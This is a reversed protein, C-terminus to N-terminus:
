DNAAVVLVAFASIIQCRPDTKKETALKHVSREVKTVIENWSVDLQKELSPWLEPPFAHDTQAKEKKDWFDTLKLQTLTADERIVIGAKDFWRSNIEIGNQDELLWSCHFYLGTIAHEVQISRIWFASSGRLNEMSYDYIGEVFPQGYRLPHIGKGISVVDRRSSLLTTLEGYFDRSLPDLGLECYEKLDHKSMETRNNIYTYRFTKPIKAVNQYEFGLSNEIWRRMHSINSALGKSSGDANIEDRSELNKDLSLLKSSFDNAEMVEDELSDMVEQRDVKRKEIKLLGNSGQEGAFLAELKELARPGEEFVLTWVEEFKNTLVHQLSAVSEGFINIGDNLLNVWASLFVAKGPMLIITKIPNARVSVSFRNARGNRQEIRNFDMPISYHIITKEGGHLNLGNEGQQDCVLIRTSPDEMFGIISQPPNYLELKYDSLWMNIKTFLNHKTDPDDCFIIFKEEPNSKLREELFNQLKLDKQYQEERCNEKLEDFLKVSILDDYDVELKYSEVEKQLLMPNSFYLELWCKFTNENLKGGFRRNSNSNVALDRLSDLIQEVSMKNKQIPWILIEPVGHEGTSDKQFGPFYIEINKDQRRNRLMRHHLRYNEGLYERMETIKNIRDKDFLDSSNDLVKEFDKAFVKWNEDDPFKEGVKRITPILRSNKNDQVLAEYVGGIFERDKVRAFFDSKGKETLPYADPSLRHLMSLYNLENGHAQTGSLLLVANLQKAKEALLLYSRKVKEDSSWARPALLHAEDIVLMTYLNSEVLKEELRDFSVIDLGNDILAELFFRDTMEQRWQEVLHVPCLVLVHSEKSRELFHQRIVMGAEITKGLGVEDALLYKQHDDDIIKKAVAIQHPVIDISSSLFSKYKGCIKRQLHHANLFNYRQVSLKPDSICKSALLSFPNYGSTKESDVIWFEKEPDNIRISIPDSESLISIAHKNSSFNLYTGICWSFELLVCVVTGYQISVEQVKDFDVVKVVSDPNDPSEFISLTVEKAIEDVQYARYFISPEGFVKLYSGRKPPSIM